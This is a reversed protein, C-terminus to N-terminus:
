RDYAYCVINNTFIGKVGRDFWQQAERWCDVTYCLTPMNLAQAQQLFHSAQPLAHWFNVSVCQRQRAFDLADAEYHEMLYARPIFPAQEHFYDIAQRSFSSLLLRAMQAQSLCAQMVQWTRQCTLEVGLKNAKIEINVALSTTQWWALFDALSPIRATPHWVQDDGRRKLSVSQLFAWDHEAVEGHANTIEDLHEDHFILPIEDRSLMVDLELWHAGHDAALQFAALTNEPALTNAGRHALIKPLALEM